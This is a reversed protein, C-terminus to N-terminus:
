VLADALKWPSMATMANPDISHISTMCIHQVDAQIYVILVWSSPRRIRTSKTSRTAFRGDDSLLLQVITLCVDACECKSHEHWDAYGIVIGKHVSVQQAGQQQALMEKEQQVMMTENEIALALPLGILLASTTVVWVANGALKGGWFAWSSSTNWTDYVKARTSPSVMDKLAYLREGLTEDEPRYLSLARELEDIDSVDSGADSSIDSGDEETVVVSACPVCVLPPLQDAGVVPRTHSDNMSVALLLMM